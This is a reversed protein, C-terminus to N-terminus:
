HHGRELYAQYRNIYPGQATLTVMEDGASEAIQLRHSVMKRELYAYLSGVYINAWKRISTFDTHYGLIHYCAEVASVERDSSLKNAWRMFFQRASNTVAETEQRPNSESGVGQQIEQGLALRRWMPTKLKTAYNTVYYLKSLGQNKNNLLEADINHRMGVIM